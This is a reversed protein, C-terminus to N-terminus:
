DKTKFVVDALKKSNRESMFANICLEAQIQTPYSTISHGNQAGRRIDCWKFWQRVQPVFNQNNIKIIRYKM